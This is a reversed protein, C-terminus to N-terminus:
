THLINENKCKANRQSLQYQEFLIRMSPMKEYYVIVPNPSDPAAKTADGNTSLTMKVPDGPTPLSTIFPAELWKFGTIRSSPPLSGITKHSSTLKFTLKIKSIYKM